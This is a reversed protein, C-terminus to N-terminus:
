RLAPIRWSITAKIKAFKKGQVIEPLIRVSSLAQIRTMVISFLLLVLIYFYITVLGAITTPLGWRRVFVPPAVIDIIMERKAMFKNINVLMEHPPPPIVM